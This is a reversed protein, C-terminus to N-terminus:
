EVIQVDVGGAANRVRQSVSSEPMVDKLGRSGMVVVSAGLERVQDIIVQAPAGELIRGAGRIGREALLTLSRDVVGRAFEEEVDTSAPDIQAVKEREFTTPVVHLVVVSAGADAAIEAARRVARESSESGDVAVLVVSV